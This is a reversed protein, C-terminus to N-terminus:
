WDAPNNSKLSFYIEALYGEKSLVDDENEEQTTVNQTNVKYGNEKQQQNSQLVNNEQLLPSHTKNVNLQM